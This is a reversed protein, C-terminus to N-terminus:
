INFIVDPNLIVHLPAIHVLECILNLSHSTTIYTIIVITISGSGIILGRYHPSLGETFTKIVVAILIEQTKVKSGPGEKPRPRTPRPRPGGM